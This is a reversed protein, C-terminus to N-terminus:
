AADDREAAEALDALVHGDVLGVSRDEDDVRPKRERPVLMEADVEDQGVERVQTLPLLHHARDHERVPVLIVDPGKRVQHALHSHREHERRAEREREDLRLEVLVPEEPGGLQPLECGAVVRDLEAGEPELEDAHRVRDRIGGRDRELRRAAAADVRAVVLEVVRRHVPLPGVDAPERLDAAAADIEQEAVGRVRLPGADRLGLPDDTLREALDERPALAPDEDGREGRVHM